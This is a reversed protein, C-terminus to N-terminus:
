DFAVMSGIEDRKRPGINFIAMPIFAARPPKGLSSHALVLWFQGTACAFWGPSHWNPGYRLCRYAHFLLCVTSPTGTAQDFAKPNQAVKVATDRLLCSEARRQRPKSENERAGKDQIMTSLHDIVSDCRGM